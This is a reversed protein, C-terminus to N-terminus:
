KNLSITHGDKLKKKLKETSHVKELFKEFEKLTKKNNYLNKQAAIISEKRISINTKKNKALKVALEIYEKPNKVIPANSIAMQKYAASTINNKLHMGPMTIMPTGVIM